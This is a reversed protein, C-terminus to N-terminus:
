VLSKGIGQEEDDTPTEITAIRLFHARPEEESETQRIDEGGAEEYFVGFLHLFSEFGREWEVHSLQEGDWEDNEADEAHPASLPHM